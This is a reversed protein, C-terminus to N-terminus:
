IEAPKARVQARARRGMRHLYRPSIEAIDRLTQRASSCSSASGDSPSIEAIDRRYRPPNPACKLVLVGVWGISFAEVTLCVWQVRNFGAGGRPVSSSAGGRPVSSSVGGRPMSSSAGGGCLSMLLVRHGGPSGDGGRSGLRVGGGNGVCRM